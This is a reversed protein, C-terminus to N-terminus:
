ERESGATDFFVVRGGKIEDLDAESGKWDFFRGDGVWSDRCSEHAVLKGEYMAQNPYDMIVDNMRYQIQLLSKLGSGYLGLLRSFMTTSLTRPPCLIPRTNTLKSSSVTHEDDESHDEDDPGDEDATSAVPLHKETSASLEADASKDDKAASKKAKTSKKGEAKGGAKAKKKHDDSSKVVPGLQKDDGALIVRTGQEGDQQKDLVAGWISAELAQCAEDVIVTDFYRKRRDQEEDQNNGKRLSRELVGGAAGHLTSLVVNADEITQTFLGRERSKLETRLARVEEQLARRESGTVRKNNQSSTGRRSTSKNGASSASDKSTYLSSYASALESRVDSLLQGASSNTSLYDLTHNQISTLIRAPHGIRVPKLDKERGKRFELLKAALNDVALNSSGAVLIREGKGIVLQLILEVLLTTKGTGPPGHILHIDKCALARSLAQTQSPNLSTNFLPLPPEPLSSPISSPSELALLARILHPVHSVTSPAPPLSTSLTASQKASAGHSPAEDDSSSDADDAPTGSQGGRIGRSTRVPIGLKSALRILNKEMRDWTVENAVKVVRCRTPLPSDGDSSGKKKKSGIAIVIKTDTMRTVVGDISEDTDKTAGAQKKSAKKGGSESDAEDVIVVVDGTRFTNPPFKVDNHYATPRHLEVLNKGGMGVSTNLVGLRCLALGNRELLKPSTSSLLLHSEELEANREQLLLDLHRQLFAQLQSPTPIQPKFLAVNSDEEM